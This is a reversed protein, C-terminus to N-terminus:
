RNYQVAPEEQESLIRRLYLRFTEELLQPLKKGDPTFVCQVAPVVNAM